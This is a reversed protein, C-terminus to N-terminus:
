FLVYYTVQKQFIFNELSHFGYIFGKFKSYFFHINKDYTNLARDEIIQKLDVINKNNSIKSDNIFYKSKKFQEKLDLRNDTLKHFKFEVFNKNLNFLNYLEQYKQMEITEDKATLYILIRQIFLSFHSKNLDNLQDFIIM